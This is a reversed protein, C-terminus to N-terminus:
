AAESFGTLSRLPASPSEALRDDPALSASPVEESYHKQACQPCFTHSFVAESHRVIYRELSHWSSDRGRIRKCFTCIPLLGYLARSAQARRATRGVLIALVTLLAMRALMDVSAALGPAPGWALAMGWHSLPMTIALAAGWRVGSLWAALMVPVLFLTPASIGPGTSLYDWAVLLLGV